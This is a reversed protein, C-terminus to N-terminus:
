IIELRRIPLSSPCTPIRVRKLEKELLVISQRLTNINNTINIDSSSMVEDIGTEKKFGDYIALESEAFEPTSGLRQQM